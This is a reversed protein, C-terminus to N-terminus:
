ASQQSPDQEAWKHKLSRIFDAPTIGLKVAMEALGDADPPYLERKTKLLTAVASACGEKSKAEVAAVEASLDAIADNLIQLDDVRPRQRTVAKAGEVKGSEQALDAANRLDTWKEKAAVNKLTAVSVGFEEALVNLSPKSKRGLYAKKAADIVRRDIAKPM